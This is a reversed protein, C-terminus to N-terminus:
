LSGVWRGDSDLIMPILMPRGELIVACGIVPKRLSHKGYAYAYSDKDILCGTYMGWYLHASSASYEVSYNGHQHGVVLNCANHAADGLIAGSSQHKFMVTGLPTEVRWAYAWNWGAGRKRDPFLVERYGKVMQVPIGHAKARRFHMSGHNSHCILMNPFEDHLEAMVLKAKELEAGASDLNPDSDHFSLAHHDLEDGLNVTLDPQFSDRVARLFPIMDPHHYPAHQDPIVMICRAVSPIFDLKAFDDDPQPKVFVREEKLERDAASMNGKNDIFVKRWYRVLQPSINERGLASYVDAADADKTFESLVEIHKAQTFLRMLSGRM